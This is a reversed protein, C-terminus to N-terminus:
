KMPSHGIFVRLVRSFQVMATPHVEAGRKESTATLMIQQRLRQNKFLMEFYPSDPPLFKKALLLCQIAGNASLIPLLSALFHSREQVRTDTAAEMTAEELFREDPSLKPRSLITQALSASLSCPTATKFSVQTPPLGNLSAVACQLQVVHKVIAPSTEVNYCLFIYLQSYRGIAALEAVNLVIQKADTVSALRSAAYVVIGCRGFAEIDVGCVDVLPTDILSIKRGRASSSQHPIEMEAGYDVSTNAWRGSALEAVIEGWSELFAESCLRKVPPLLSGDPKTVATTATQEQLRITRQPLGASALNHPEHYQQFPNEGSTQQTHDSLDKKAQTPQHHLKGTPDRPNDQPRLRQPM